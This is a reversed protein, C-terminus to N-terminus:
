TVGGAFTISSANTFTKRFRSDILSDQVQPQPWERKQKSKQKIIITTEPFLLSHFLPLFFNRSVVVHFLVRRGELDICLLVLTAQRM